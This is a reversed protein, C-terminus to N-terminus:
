KQEGLGFRKKIMDSLGTAGIYGIMAAIIVAADAPMAWNSLLSDVGWGIAGCFVVDVFSDRASDNKKYHSLANITASLIGYGLQNKYLSFIEWFASYQHQNM